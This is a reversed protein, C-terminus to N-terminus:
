PRSLEGALGIFQSNTLLRLLDETSRGAACLGSVSVTRSRKQTFHQSNLNDNIVIYTNLLLQFLEKNGTMERDNSGLTMVKLLM